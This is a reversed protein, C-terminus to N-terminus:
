LFVAKKRARLDPRYFHKKTMVVGPTKKRVKKVQGDYRPTRDVMCQPQQCANPASM